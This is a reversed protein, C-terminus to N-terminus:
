YGLTQCRKYCIFSTAARVVQFVDSFRKFDDFCNKCILHM